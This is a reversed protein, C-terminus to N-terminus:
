KKGSELKYLDSLTKHVADMKAELVAQGRIYDERLVYNLPLTAILSNLNKENDEVKTQLVEIRREYQVLLMKGFGWCVGLFSLLFGIIQWFEVSIFTRNDM